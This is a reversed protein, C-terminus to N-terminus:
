ILEYSVDPKKCQLGCIFARRLIQWETALSEM